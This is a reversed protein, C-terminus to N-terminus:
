GLVALVVLAVTALGLVVVLVIGKWHNREKNLFSNDRSREEKPV